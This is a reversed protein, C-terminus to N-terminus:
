QNEKDDKSGDSVAIIWFINDPLKRIVEEFSAAVNYCPIVVTLIM